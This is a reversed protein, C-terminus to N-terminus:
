ASYLILAGIVLAALGMIKVVAPPRAQWWDLMKYIWERNTLFIILGGIIMLSGLIYIIIAQRCLPATVLFITGFIIRVTGALYIRKGQKWFNMIAKLVDPNLLVALGMCTVVIGLARVLIVM